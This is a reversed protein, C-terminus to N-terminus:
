RTSYLLNKTWRISCMFPEDYFGNGSQLGVIVGWVVNEGQVVCPPFRTTWVVLHDTAPYKRAYTIESLVAWLKQHNQFPKKECKVCKVKIECTMKLLNKADKSKWVKWMKVIKVSKWTEVLSSQAREGSIPGIKKSSRRQNWGHKLEVVSGVSGVSRILERM